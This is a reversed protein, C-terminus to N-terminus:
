KQNEKKLLDQMHQAQVELYRKEYYEERTPLSRVPEGKVETMYPVAYRTEGPTPKYGKRSQNKQADRDCAACGYCTSSEINFQIYSDDNHSIWSPIGCKNCTEDKLIQWAVYMLADIEHVLKKKLKHGPELLIFSPKVGATM